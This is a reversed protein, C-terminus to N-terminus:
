RSLNKLFKNSPLLPTREPGLRLILAGAEPFREELLSYCVSCGLACIRRDIRARDNVNVRGLPKADM